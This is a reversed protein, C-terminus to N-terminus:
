IHIYKKDVAVIKFLDNCAEEAENLNTYVGRIDNSDDRRVLIYLVNIEM